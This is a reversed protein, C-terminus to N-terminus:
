GATPKTAVPIVVDGANLFGGARLVVRENGSLGEMVVIGQETVDGTKVARRAVKNNGGVVFVYQGKEDSLIASQPLLPANVVGSKIAASAFGGPRLAANYPLAVRAIGERSIPDIVPSLQWIQGPFATTTGVPTVSASIGVALKALDAESVHAQMEMEGDRAIRFLVGSGAGVVQGPEVKRELVLGAAPAVINLRANRANTAGLSARALRVRANASDRTATLKDVDSKSIFGRDVLKLGRDLNAQAIRADAAAVEISAADSVAQQAQVSRDIVALVQGQRVWSGADVLVAAVQGGEGAIGVPLERRAALTGSSTIAADVTTRGPAIVSVTQAQAGKNQDAAGAAVNHRYAFWAGILIAVIVVAIIWRRRSRPAGGEVYSDFPELSAPGGADISTEYNM